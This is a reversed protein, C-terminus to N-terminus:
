RRLTSNFWRSVEDVILVREEASSFEHDCNQLRVWRTRGSSNVRSNEYLRAQDITVRDDFDSHIHLLPITELTKMAETLDLQFFGKFFTPGLVNGDLVRALEERLSEDSTDALMEYKKRWSKSSFVAAMLAISKIGKEEAAALVAIAAGFSNGLIGLRSADILPHKKLYELACMADSVESEVTMNTFDGESEGSGRFDFRLSAIGLESLKEAILVYIRYKGIRNGALGHCMIVAPSKKDSIPLHLMGYIKQGENEIIVFEREELKKM